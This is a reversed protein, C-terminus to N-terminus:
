ISLSRLIAYRQKPPRFGGAFGKQLLKLSLLKTRSALFLPGAKGLKIIEKSTAIRSVCCCCCYLLIYDREREGANKCGQTSMIIAIIKNIQRTDRIAAQKPGESVRYM